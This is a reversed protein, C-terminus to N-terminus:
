SLELVDNKIYDAYVILAENKTNFHLIEPKGFTEISCIMLSYAPLKYYNLQHNYTLEILQGTSLHSTEIIKTKM